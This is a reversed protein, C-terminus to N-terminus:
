ARESVLTNWFAITQPLVNTGRQFLNAIRARVVEFVVDDLGDPMRARLEARWEPLFDRGPELFDAAYLARGMVGFCRDGVTHYAVARLLEGDVVGEVRIREAAAPGHLLPRPLDRLAVPVRPRLAEPREDRLSDHLFGLSRWRTEEAAGLALSRAWSGLLESVRAMHERRGPSAEAWEPLM